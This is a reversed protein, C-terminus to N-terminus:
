KISKFKMTKITSDAMKRHGSATMHCLFDGCDRDARSIFHSRIVKAGVISDQLMRQFAVYRSPYKKWALSKGSVDVCTKPDFGTLVIAKVGKSRCLDVISQINKVASAPSITGAMDNAGGWIFCYNLGSHVNGFAVGKMWSTTKGGVSINHYTMGTSRCLRDQWGTPNSTHSDGIFLVKKGRVSVVTDPIKVAAQLPLDPIQSRGSEGRKEVSLSAGLLGLSLVAVGALKIQKNKM